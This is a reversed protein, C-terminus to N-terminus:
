KKLIAISLIGQMTTTNNGSVLAASGFVRKVRIDITHNGASLTASKQLAFNTRNQLVGTTNAAVFTLWSGNTPAIGDIFIAIDVATSGSTSLSTTEFGGSTSITLVSNAPVNIAQTLGPIITFTTSSFNSLSSTGYVDFADQGTTGSPGTAGTAGTAGSNGTAGTAGTPGVATAWAAGNYYNFQNTTTNYILLGTAPASIADRQTTTMRPVLAGKNTSSVDLMASPAATPNDSANIAVGTQAISTTSLFLGITATIVATFLLKKM